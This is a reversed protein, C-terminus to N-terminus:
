QEFEGPTEGRKLEIQRHFIPDDIQDITAVVERHPGARNFVARSQHDPPQAAVMHSYTGRGGIELCVPRGQADLIQRSVGAHSICTRTPVVNPAEGVSVASRDFHRRRIADSQVIQGRDRLRSRCTGSIEPAITTISGAVPRTSAM